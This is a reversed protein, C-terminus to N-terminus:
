QGSVRWHPLPARMNNGCATIRFHEVNALDATKRIEGVTGRVCYDGLSPIVGLMDGFIRVDYSNSPKAGDGSTSITTKAFWSACDTFVYREYSDGDNDKIHKVLTITETCGLM